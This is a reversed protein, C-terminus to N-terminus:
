PNRFHAVQRRGPRSLHHGVTPDYGLFRGILDYHHRPLIAQFLALRQYDEARIVGHPFNSPNPLDPFPDNIYYYYPPIGFHNHRMQKFKKKYVEKWDTDGQETDAGFDRYVFHKWLSVDQTVSHLYRCVESLKLISPVDLLLMISLLLEPPLVTLGFLAPLGLAERARAILPYVLQDKFVHSLKQIDRYVLGANGGAWEKTVYDDPNLALKQSFEETGNTKMITKVVLTQGKLVGVMQVPSNECFPHFYQLRCLCEIAHWGSPMEGSRIDCGQPLFGTELLLVHAALLLCDSTSNCQVTQYLTELSPPVKDKEAECCLMPGPIFLGMAEQEAEGRDMDTEETECTAYTSDPSEHNSTTGSQHTVLGTPSQPTNQDASINSNCLGASPLVVEKVQTSLQTLTPEPGELEVRSTQEIVRVRIQINSNETFVVPGTTDETNGTTEEEDDRNVYYYIIVVPTATGIAVLLSRWPLNEVAARVASMFRKM